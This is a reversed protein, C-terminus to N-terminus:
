QWEASNWVRCIYVVHSGEQCRGLEHDNTELRRRLRLVAFMAFLSIFLNAFGLEM